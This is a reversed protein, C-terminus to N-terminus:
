WRGVESLYDDFKLYSVKIMWIEVGINNGWLFLKKFGDVGISWKRIFRDREEVICLWFFFM